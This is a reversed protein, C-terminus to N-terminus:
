MLPTSYGFQFSKEGIKGCIKFFGNQQSLKEQKYDQKTANDMAIALAVQTLSNGDRHGTLRYMSYQICYFVLAIKMKGIYTLHYM